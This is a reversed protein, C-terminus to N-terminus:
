AKPEDDKPYVDLRLNIAMDSLRHLLTHDFCEDWNGDAFVGCFLETAGGERVIGLLYSKHPELRDLIAALCATLETPRALEFEHVWYSSPYAGQLPKGKPNTRPQGVKHQRSVELGLAHSISDPDCSPHEVSLSVAFSRKIHDMTM